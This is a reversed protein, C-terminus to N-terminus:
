PGGIKGVRQDADAALVEKILSKAHPIARGMEWPPPMDRTIRGYQCLMQAVRRELASASAYAADWRVKKDDLRKKFAALAEDDDKARQQEILKATCEPAGVLPLRPAENGAGVLSGVPEHADHPHYDGPPNPSVPQFSLLPKAKIARDDVPIGNFECYRRGLATLRWGKFRSTTVFFEKEILGKDKLTIYSVSLSDIRRGSAVRKLCMSGHRNVFLAKAKATLDDTM